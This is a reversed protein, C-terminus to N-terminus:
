FTSILDTVGQTRFLVEHRRYDITLEKLTGLVDMGLLLAPRDQLGWFGFVQFDGFTVATDTVSIQGLVIPSVVRVNGSETTQTADIVDATAPAAPNRSRRTLATYLALNGLTHSAGTDIVATVASRDAVGDVELLLGSVTRAALVLDHLGAHRGTSEGVTVRDHVFDATIRKNTLHDMGLIGDLGELVFGGLVPLRPHAYTISGFRLTEFSCAQTSVLGTVGHVVLAPGSDTTLHLEAVLRDSVASHTAGTDLLFRYPGHDDIYVPVIIRGARDLRTAIAFQSETPPEIHSGTAALASGASLCALIWFRASLNGFAKPAIAAISSISTSWRYLAAASGAVPAWL